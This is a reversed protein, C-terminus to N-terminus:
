KKRSKKQKKTLLEDVIGNFKEIFNENNNSTANNMSKCVSEYEVIDKEIEAIDNVVIINKQRESMANCFDVQHNNVHENFEKRRPVVIPIKGKQLALIFSSPGGHTIVIRAEEMYKNMQDFPLFDTATCFKPVFNSYGKQIVVEDQIIGEGKLVDIKEVLRNFQQEHTGVTVFIM